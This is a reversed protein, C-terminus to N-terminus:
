GTDRLRDDLRQLARKTREIKRILLEKEDCGVKAPDYAQKNKVMAYLIRAMKHATAVIAQMHGSKAKMRRFYTGMESKEAKVSNACVRLVLGVPNKRKPIYSSVLKGGTVKNNPVVNCWKCFKACTDFKDTFDHGLEAVLQLMSNTSMGPIAMVNTGWIMHAYMEMDVAVANKQSRRKKVRELQKAGENDIQSVYRALLSEIQQDCAQLQGQYFDYCEVSQRLMFLLDEDWTGELSKAVTEKSAKCHKDTMQSLSVPDHNGALIARIISQGTKGLIDTIVTSLKVNMMELAKQMRQTEQGAKNIITARHRTINRIQRVINEPQFSPRVMGYSHLLMLWEADAEDTKEEMLNKVQLPNALVVDFGEEKLLQYLSLWYVGTAEMAVTKIRCAHLWECIAHLDETFSGFRRNNDGDRDEPVCVQMEGDAIDIGASDPNVIKLRLGKATKIKKAKKAMIKPTTFTLALRRSCPHTNKWVADSPWDESWM